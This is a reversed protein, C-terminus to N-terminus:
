QFHVDVVIFNIFFLDWYESFGGSRFDPFYFGLSGTLYPPSQYPNYNSVGVCEGWVGCGGLGEGVRGFGELGM